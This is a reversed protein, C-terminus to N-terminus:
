AAKALVSRTARALRRVGEALKEPDNLTFNLRIARRNRGEPDFVSSPTVCVGHALAERLADILVLTEPSLPKAPM